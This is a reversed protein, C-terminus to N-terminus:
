RSTNDDRKNLIFQELNTKHNYKMSAEKDKNIIVDNMDIGNLAAIAVAYHIVDALENGLQAQLDEKGTSKRGAKKNLVEAVEGIEEVLKMFLSQDIGGNSYHDFLYEQLEEITVKM